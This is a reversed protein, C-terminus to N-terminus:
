FDYIVLKRTKNQIYTKFFDSHRIDKLYTNLDEISDFRMYIGLDFSSDVIPRDSAIPKGINLTKVQKINQLKLTESMVRSIWEPSTDEKFWVLIVHNVSQGSKVPSCYFLTFAYM